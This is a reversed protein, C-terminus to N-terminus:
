VTKEPTKKWIKGTIITRYDDASAYEARMWYLDDGQKEYFEFGQFAIDKANFEWGFVQPGVVGKGEVKGLTNNELLVNFGESNMDFFVFQNTMVDQIGKIQVEQCCEILGSQDRPLIRWKTVFNLPEDVLSLTISGEGLWEGPSFIFEHSTM